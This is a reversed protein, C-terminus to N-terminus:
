ESVSLERVANALAPQDLAALEVTRAGIATGYNRGTSRAYCPDYHLTMVSEFLEDVQGSTALEM